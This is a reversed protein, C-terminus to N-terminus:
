RVGQRLLTKENADYIGQVKAAVEPPVDQSLRLEALRSAGWAQARPDPSKIASEITSLDPTSRASSEDLAAQAKAKIETNGQTAAYEIFKRAAAREKPDLSNNLQTIRGDILGRQAPDLEPPLDPATDEGPAREITGREKSERSEAPAPASVPDPFTIAEGTYRGPGRYEANLNDTLNERGQKLASEISYRFATPDGGASIAEKMADLVNGRFGDIGYAEHAKLISNEYLSKMQQWTDPPAYKGGDWGANVLQETFAANINDKARQIGSTANRGWKDPDVGGLLDELMDSTGPRFGEIKEAGHLAFILAKKDSMLRQHKSTALRSSKDLVGLDAIDRAMQNALRNVDNVYPKTKQLDKAQEETRPIFVSGNSQTLPGRKVNGKEDVGLPMGDLVREGLKIEREKDSKDEKAAKTRDLALHGFAVADENANHKATNKALFDERDSKAIDIRNKLDRQQFADAAQAQAARLQRVQGEIQLRTTGRPDFDQMKTTLDNIASEYVAGRYVAAERDKEAATQLQQNIEAGRRAIEGRKQTINFKQSEIDDDIQKNIMELGLNRGGNQSQALGGLAAAAFAAITHLTGRNMWRKPDVDAIKKADADNQARAAAADNQAKVFADHAAQAEEMRKTNAELLGATYAANKAETHQAMRAIYAEPSENASRQALAVDEDNANAPTTIGGIQNLYLQHPDVPAVGSVADVEPAPPAVDQPPSSPGPAPMPLGALAPVGALGPLPAVGPATTADVPPPPVESPASAPSEGGPPLGPAALAAAPLPPPEFVPSQTVDAAVQDPAPTQEIPAAPMGFGPPPWPVDVGYMSGPMVGNTDDLAM